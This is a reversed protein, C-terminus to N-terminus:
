HDADVHSVFLPKLQQIVTGRLHRAYAAPLDVIHRPRTVVRGNNALDMFHGVIVFYGDIFTLLEVVVRFSAILDDLGYATGPEVTNWPIEYQGDNRRLAVMSPDSSDALCLKVISLSHAQISAELIDRIFFRGLEFQFFQILVQPNVGTFKLKRVGIELTEG